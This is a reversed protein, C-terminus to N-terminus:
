DENRGLAAYCGLTVKSLRDSEYKWAPDGPTGTLQGCNYPAAELKGQITNVIEHTCIQAGRSNFGDYPDNNYFWTDTPIAAWPRLKGNVVVGEPLAWTSGAHLPDRGNLKYLALVASCPPILNLWKQPLVSWHLDYKNDGAHTYEHQDNFMIFTLKLEFRSYKRLFGAVEKLPIDAKETKDLKDLLLVVLHWTIRDDKAVVLRIDHAAADPYVDVIRYLTDDPGIATVGWGKVDYQKQELKRQLKKVTFM